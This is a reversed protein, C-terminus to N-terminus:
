KGNTQSWQALYSDKPLFWMPDFEQRLEVNGWISVGMLSSSLMLVFIQAPKTLLIQSYHHFAVQLLDPKSKPPGIGEVSKQKNEINQELENSFNDTAADHKLCPLFGNRRAEIRKQLLFICSL